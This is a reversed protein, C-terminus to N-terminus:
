EKKDDKKADNKELDRRDKNLSEQARLRAAAEAESTSPRGSLRVVPLEVDPANDELRQLASRTNRAGSAARDAIALGGGLVFNQVGARGQGKIKDGLGQVRPMDVVPSKVAPPKVDPIRPPAAAPPAVGVPASVTVGPAPAPSGGTVTSRATPLTPLKPQVAQGGVGIDTGYLTGSRVRAFEPPVTTTPAPPASALIPAGTLPNRGVVVPAPAPAPAAGLLKNLDVDPAKPAPKPVPPTPGGTLLEATTKPPPPPAVPTIVGVPPLAPARGSPTTVGVVPQGRTMSQHPVAKGGAADGSITSAATQPGTPKTPPPTTATVTGGEFLGTQLANQVAPHIPVKGQLMQQVQAADIRVGPTANTMEVVRRLVAPNNAAAALDVRSQGLPFKVGGIEKEGKGLAALAPSVASLDKALLDKFEKGTLAKDTPPLGLNYAATAAAVAGPNAGFAQPSVPRVHLPNLLSNLGSAGAAAPTFLKGFLGKDWFGKAPTQPTALFKQVGQAMAKANAANHDYGTRANLIRNGIARAGGILATNKATNSVLSGPGDPAKVVQGQNFTDFAQPDRVLDEPNMSQSLEMPTNFPLGTARAAMSGIASQGLRPWQHMGRDQLAKDMQDFVAPGRGAMLASGMVPNVAPSVEGAAESLLTPSAAFDKPPIQRAALTTARNAGELAQYAEATRAEAAPDPGLLNRELWGPQSGAAGVVNGAATNRAKAAENFAGFAPSSPSAKAAPGYVDKNASDWNALQTASEPTSSVFSQVKGPLSTDAKDGGFPKNDNVGPVTVPPKPAEPPPAKGGSNFLQYAGGGLAGAGAGLLGGTLMDSLANRKKKRNTLGGLLGIGAGIPAGILAASAWPNNNVYDSVGSLPNTAGSQNVGQGFQNGVAKAQSGLWNGAGQAKTQIWELPNAQKEAALGAKVAAPAPPPTQPPAPPYLSEPPASRRPLIPPPPTLKNVGVVVDGEGRANNVISGRVGSAHAASLPDFAHINPVAPHGLITFAGAPVPHEWDFLQKADGPRNSYDRSGAAMGYGRVSPPYHVPFALKQREDEKLRETQVQRVAKDKENSRLNGKLGSHALYALLGGTGLGALSLENAPTGMARQGLGYGGAGALGTFAGRAAGQLREGTPATATGMLGGLTALPLGMAAGANVKQFPNKNGPITVVRLSNPLVDDAAAKEATQAPSEVAGLDQNQRRKEKDKKNRYHALLGGGLAGAVGLGGLALPTANRQLWNPQAPPKVVTPQPIPYAMLAQKKGGAPNDLQTGLFLDLLLDGEGLQTIQNSM